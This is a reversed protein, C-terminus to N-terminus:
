RLADPLIVDKLILQNGRSADASVNGNFIIQDKLVAEGHIKTIVNTPINIIEVYEDAAKTVALRRNNQTLDYLWLYNPLADDYHLVYHSTRILNATPSKTCENISSHINSFSTTLVTADEGKYSPFIQLSTLVTNSKPHNVSKIKINAEEDYIFTNCKEFGKGVGIGTLSKGVRYEGLNASVCIPNGSAQTQDPTITYFVHYGLKTILMFETVELILEGKSVTYQNRLGIANDLKCIMCKGAEPAFTTTTDSETELVVPNNNYSIVGPYFTVLERFWRTDSDKYLFQRAMLWCQSWANNGKDSEYFCLRKIQGNFGLYWDDTKAVVAKISDVVYFGLKGLESSSSHSGSRTFFGSFHLRITPHEFIEFVRRIKDIPLKFFRSLLFFDQYASSIYGYARLNSHFVFGGDPYLGEGSTTAKLQVFKKTYEIISDEPDYTKLLLKGGIYPIAMMVANPGDRTWGMSAVGLNGSEAFYQSIYNALHSQLSENEKKNLRLYLYTSMVLFRPFTISFQYWNTGWPVKYNEPQSPIKAMVIEVFRLVMNWIVSSKYHMSDVQTTLVMIEQIKMIVELFAESHQDWTYNPITTDSADVASVALLRNDWNFSNIILSAAQDSMSKINIAYEYIYESFESMDSIIRNRRNRRETIYKYVLYALIVVVVSLAVPGVRFLIKRTLRQNHYM